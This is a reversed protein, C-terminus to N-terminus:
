FTYIYLNRYDYDDSYNIHNHLFPNSSSHCAFCIFPTTKVCPKSEDRGKGRKNGRENEWKKNKKRRTTTKENERETCMENEQLGIEKSEVKLAVTRTQQRGM